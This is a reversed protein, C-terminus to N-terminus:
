AHANDKRLERRLASWGGAFSVASRLAAIGQRKQLLRIAFRTASQFRVAIAYLSSFIRDPSFPLSAAVRALLSRSEVFHRITSFPRYEPHMRCLKV